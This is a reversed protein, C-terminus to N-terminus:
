SQIECRLLAIVRCDREDTFTDFFQLERTKLLM